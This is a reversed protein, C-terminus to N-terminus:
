TEKKWKKGINKKNGQSLSRGTQDLFPYSKEREVGSIPLVLSIKIM